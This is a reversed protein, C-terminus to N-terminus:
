LPAAGDVASGPAPPIAHAPGGPPPEAAEPKPSEATTPAREPAGELASEEPAIIAAADVPGEPAAATAAVAREAIAQRAAKEGEYQSLISNFEM